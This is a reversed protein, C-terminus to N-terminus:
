KPNVGHEHLGAKLYPLVQKLNTAVLEAQPQAANEVAFTVDDDKSYNRVGYLNSKIEKLKFRM